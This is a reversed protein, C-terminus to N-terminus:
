FTNLPFQTDEYKDYKKHKVGSRKKVSEGARYGPSQVVDKQPSNTWHEEEPEEKAIVPTEGKSLQAIEEYRDLESGRFQFNEPNFQRDIKDWEEEINYIEDLKM